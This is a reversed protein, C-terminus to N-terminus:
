TSRKRSHTGTTTATAIRKGDRSIALATPADSHVNDISRVLRGTNADLFLVRALPQVHINQEGTGVLVFRGDPTLRAPTTIRSFGITRQPEFTWAPTGDPVNFAVIIYKAGDFAAILKKGDPTFTLSKVGISQLAGLTVHPAVFTAALEGTEVKWMSLSQRGSVVFRGYPSFAVADATGGAPQPLTRVKDLSLANWLTVAQLSM